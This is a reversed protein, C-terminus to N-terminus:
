PQPTPTPSPEAAVRAFIIPETKVIGQGEQIVLTQNAKVQQLTMKAGSPWQIDLTVIKDAGEPKGLGFTLALESQSAYSSGTRVMGWPKAGGSAGVVKVRAGIADRNSQNGVLRVRVVDNQNANDNRYLRAAGNNATVLIDLDGDNDYDAYAAGRGVQARGLARGVKGTVEEFRRRGLNRFLHPPQAYRVRPQVKQIDDSVHGNVAFIDPLGDLDYDFFFTAFTLSQESMKGIGSTQAEDTFLGGGENRYLAMRESTFNGIILSQRGSGDYDAADVGMGARAAGTEGFAVGATLAEDIFTGDGNNKYLKNPETDNAVFLDIAGDDNYDILAVGLAKSAPDALGARQTANEFTGNGRNHYLTPSQGKYKQPTCYSKNTGDLTCHVDTEVSWEVYNAVFLDLKGDKDYDFWAASTGFGPDGVGARATVDQFKGNGLNRFLKDAGVATVFIDAFGDNDYDAVACGIGYLEVALGAERTVDTFTSDRNNHYLASFTKGGRKEPWNTSNVFFIDQWGDNDYDLFAAGAGMTEPLYKKGAAGNNHRFRIGAEGTVDTFEIAGSPRPAPTPTATPTPTAGPSAAADAGAQQEQPALTATTTPDQKCGSLLISLLLVLSFVTLPYRM